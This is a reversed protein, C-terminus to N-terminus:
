WSGLFLWKRYFTRSKNLQNTKHKVGGHVRTRNHSAQIGWQMCVNANLEARLDVLIVTSQNYLIMIIQQLYFQVLLM